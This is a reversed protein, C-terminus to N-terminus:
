EGENLPVLQEKIDKIEENVNEIKTKFEHQTFELSHKFDNIDNSLKELRDNMIKNNSSIISKITEEHKKFMKEFLEKM